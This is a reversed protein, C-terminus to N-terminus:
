LSFPEFMPGLSSLESLLLVWAELKSRECVEVVLQPVEFSQWRGDPLLFVLNLPFRVMAQVSDHDPGGDLAFTSHGPDLGVFQVKSFHVFAFPAGETPGSSFFLLPSCLSLWVADLAGTSSSLGADMNPLSSAKDEAGAIVPRSLAEESSATRGQTRGPTKGPTFWPDPRRSSATAESFLQWSDGTGNSSRAGLVPVGDSTVRAWGEIQAFAAVATTESLPECEVQLSANPISNDCLRNYIPRLVREFDDGLSKALCCNIDLWHALTVREVDRVLPDRLSWNLMMTSFM